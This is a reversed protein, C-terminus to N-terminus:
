LFRLGEAYYKQQQQNIESSGAIISLFESTYEIEGSFRYDM